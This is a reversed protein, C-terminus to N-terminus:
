QLKILVIFAKVRAATNGGPWPIGDIADPLCIM